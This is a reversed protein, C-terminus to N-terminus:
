IDRGREPFLAFAANVLRAGYSETDVRKIGKIVEYKYGNAAAFSQLSGGGSKLEDAMQGIYKLNQDNANHEKWAAVVKDKIEKLEPIRAPRVDTVEIVFDEGNKEDFVLDTVQGKDKDFATQLFLVSFDEDDKHLGAKTELKLGLKGAIEKLTSGGALEDEMKVRTDYASNDKSKPLRIYNIDRIEATQFSYSHENYYEELEKQTPEALAPKFSKPIIVIEVDRTEGAMAAQRKAIFDSVPISNTITGLLINNRLESRLMAM